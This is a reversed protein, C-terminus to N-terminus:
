IPVLHSCDVPASTFSTYFSCFSGTYGTGVVAVLLLLLTDVDVSLIQLKFKDEDTTERESPRISQMVVKGSECRLFYIFSVFSLAM